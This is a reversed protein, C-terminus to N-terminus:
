FLDKNYRSIKKEEVDGHYVEGLDSDFVSEDMEVFGLYLGEGGRM